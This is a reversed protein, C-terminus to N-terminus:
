CCIKVMEVVYVALSSTVMTDVRDTGWGVIGTTSGTIGMDVTGTAAGVVSVMTSCNNDVKVEKTSRNVVVVKVSCLISVEVRDRKSVSISM